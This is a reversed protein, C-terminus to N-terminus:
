VGKALLALLTAVDDDSALTVYGPLKLTLHTSNDAAVALDSVCPVVEVHPGFMKDGLRVCVGGKSHALAPEEVLIAGEPLSDRVRRQVVKHARLHWSTLRRQAAANERQRRLEAVVADAVANLWDTTDNREPFKVASSYRGEVTVSGRASTAGYGAKPPRVRVTVVPAGVGFADDGRLAYSFMGHLSANREHAVVDREAHMRAHLKRCVTKHWLDAQKQREAPLFDGLNKCELVPM